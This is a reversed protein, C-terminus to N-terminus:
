VIKSYLEAGAGEGKVSIHVSSNELIEQLFLLLTYYLLILIHVCRWIYNLLHLDARGEVEYSPTFPINM